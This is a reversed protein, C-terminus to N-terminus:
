SGLYGGNDEADAHREAIYKSLFESLLDICKTSNSKTSKNHLSLLFKKNRDIKRLQVVM